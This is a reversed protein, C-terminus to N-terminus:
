PSGPVLRAAAEEPMAAGSVVDEVAEQLASAVQAYNSLRPRPRAAQLQQEIFRLYSDGEGDGALASVALRRTPLYGAAQNWSANIGAAMLRTMLEVALAQRDPDETVLVLAWGRSIPPGAGNIAPIPAVGASPLEEGEVLYRHASVHALDAEGAVYATWCDDVTDYDLIDAFVGRSVGDQYFQLVATLSEADLFPADPDSEVPWPRVALYQVLFSDNVLGGQGAAPFAYVGPGSLVGPWSRPPVTLKGTNYILHNLDAQFQLGWLQGDLSTAQRAFPYLDALLEQSVLNDLPQLVGAQVAAPLEDVDIIALDPMLAPVVPATTLLFDLIGGRGYPKKLLFELRAEPHAAEFEMVQGALIQGSTIAETPSFAETTWMTLTIATSAGPSAAAASTPEAAAGGPPPTATEELAGPPPTATTPLLECGGLLVAALVLLFFLALSLWAGRPGRQPKM